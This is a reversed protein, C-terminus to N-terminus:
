TVIVNWNYLKARLENNGITGNVNGSM